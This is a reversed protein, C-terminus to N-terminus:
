TAWDPDRAAEAALKDGRRYALDRIAEATVNEATPPEAVYRRTVDDVGELLVFLFKGLLMKRQGPTLSWKRLERNEDLLADVRAALRANEERLYRNRERLSAVTQKM